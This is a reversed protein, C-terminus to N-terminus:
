LDRECSTRTVCVVISAAGRQWLLYVNCLCVPLYVMIRATLFCTQWISHLLKAHSKPCIENESEECIVTLLMQGAGWKGVVSYVGFVCCERIQSLCLNSRRKGCQLTEECIGVFMGKRSRSGKSQVYMDVYSHLLLGELVLHHLFYIFHSESRFEFKTTYCTLESLISNSVFKLSVLFLFNSVSAFVLTRNM